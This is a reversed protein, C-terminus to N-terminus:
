SSVQSIDEKKSLSSLISGSSITHMILVRWGPVFRAADPYTKYEDEVIRVM